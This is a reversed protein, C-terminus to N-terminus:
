SGSIGMSIAMNPVTNPVTNPVSPYRDWHGLAVGRPAAETAALVEPHPSLCRQSPSRGGRPRFFEHGTKLVSFM